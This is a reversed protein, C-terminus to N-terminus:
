FKFEIKALPLINHLAVADLIMYYRVELGVKVLGTSVIDYGVMLMMAAANAQPKAFATVENIKETIIGNGLAYGIGGGLYLGAVLSMKAQALVPVAGITGSLGLSNPANTAGWQITYLPMYAIGFGINTKPSISMWLDGGFALGGRTGGKGTAIYGSASALSNLNNYQSDLSDYASSSAVNYGGWPSISAGSVSIASVVNPVLFIIILIFHIKNRKNM